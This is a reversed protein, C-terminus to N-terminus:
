SKFIMPVPVPHREKSFYASTLLQWNSIYAALDGSDLVDASASFHEVSLRCGGSEAGIQGLALVWSVALVWPGLALVWSVTPICDVVRIWNLYSM